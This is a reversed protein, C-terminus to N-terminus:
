RVRRFLSFQFSQRQGGPTVHVEPESKLLAFRPGLEEALMEGDYRRVDLGSCKAPGDLAFTGMVVHGGVQVVRGLLAVYAARDADSTLFHFVARDHWVDCENISPMETVDAVIWEIEKARAGLREQASALAAASIDLVGVAYGLDLLREALVSRGGGVDLVRGKACAEGILKLSMAPEAQTWSLEEDAKSAYISDWHGAKDM